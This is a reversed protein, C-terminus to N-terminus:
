VSLKGEVAFVVQTLQMAALLAAGGLCCSRPLYICNTQRQQAHILHAQVQRVDNIHANQGSWCM